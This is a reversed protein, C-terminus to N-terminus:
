TTSAVSAAPNARRTAKKFGIAQTFPYNKHFTQQDKQHDILLLAANDVSLRNEATQMKLHTNQM